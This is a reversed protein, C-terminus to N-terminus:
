KFTNKIPPTEEISIIKIGFYELAEEETAFGLDPQWWVSLHPYIVETWGERANPDDMYYEPNGPVYHITMQESYFISIANGTTNFKIEWATYKGVFAENRRTVIGEYKCIITDEKVIREGNYEIEIRVPFEGYTIEPNLPDPPLPRTYMGIAIFIWPLTLYAVFLAFIIVVIILIIRKM